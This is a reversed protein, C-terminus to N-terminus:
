HPVEAHHRREEEYPETHIMVVANPLAARLRDELEETVRHAERLSMDDDVQIHVDVHRQSGSQRTRLKHWGLIRPDARLTEEVLRIESEPLRHDVLPAAAEKAIDIATKLVFLGVVGAVLPDFWRIGTVAVLGLGLCVGM